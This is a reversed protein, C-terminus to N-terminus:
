LTPGVSYGESDILTWHPQDDDEEVDILSLISLGCALAVQQELRAGHSDQWGPLLVIADCRLMAVLDYRLYCSWSHDMGKEIEHPLLRCRRDALRGSDVCARVNKPNVAGWSMDRLLGECVKFMDTDDTSYMIPGSIYAKM